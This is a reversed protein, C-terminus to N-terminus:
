PQLDHQLLYAALHEGILRHGEANFHCRDLAIREAPVGGLWESLDVVEIGRERAFQQLLPLDATSKATGDLEPSALVLLRAGSRQAREQIDALPASVRTWDSAPATRRARAVVAQSLLDYLRSHVLLFDGLRPPVPLAHIMLRGDESLNGFDVVHGGVVRYQNADDVWYHVLVLNPRIRGDIEKYVADEQLTNYGPVALNLIEVPRTSRTALVRRTQELYTQEQPLSVGYMISDGLGVITFADRHASVRPLDDRDYRPQRDDWLAIGDVIRTPVERVFILQGFMPRVGVLRALGEALLVAALTSLVVVAIRTRLRSPPPSRM